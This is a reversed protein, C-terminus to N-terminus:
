SLPMRLAKIPADTASCKALKGDVRWVGEFGLQFNPMFAETYKNVVQELGVSRAIFRQMDGFLIPKQGVGIDDLSPCIYVPRDLLYRRGQADQYANNGVFYHNTTTLKRIALWTKLKMLWGARMGYADDLSGM